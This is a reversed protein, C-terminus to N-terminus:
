RRRSACTICLAAEPLAELRAPAIENGCTTCRGYTGAAVRKLAADIAALHEQAQELLAEAQAREFGITTGEPDHEDDGTTSDASGIIAAFDKRLGALRAVVDAREEELRERADQMSGPEGM